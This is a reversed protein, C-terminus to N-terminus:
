PRVMLRERYAVPALTKRLFEGAAEPGTELREEVELMVLQDHGVAQLRSRELMELAPGEADLAGLTLAALLQAEVDETRLRAAEQLERAAEELDDLQLHTLGLLVRAWGDDDQPDVATGFAELAETFRGALALAVGWELAIEDDEPDLRRAAELEELAEELLGERALYAGYLWRALPLEPALLAATRLAAGAEPDDFAAVGNGATALVWPDEPALALCQRFREYATGDDGLEREAVALWCLLRADDGHEEAGDRLLRAASDWDGEEEMQLAQALIGEVPDLGPIETM